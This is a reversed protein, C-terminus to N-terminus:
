TKGSWQLANKLYTPREHGAEQAKVRPQPTVAKQDSSCRPQDPDRYPAVLVSSGAAAGNHATFHYLIM